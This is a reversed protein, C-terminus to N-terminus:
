FSNEMIKNLGMGPVSATRDPDPNNTIIHQQKKEKYIQQECDCVEGGWGGVGVCVVVM